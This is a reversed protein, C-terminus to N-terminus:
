MARAVVTIRIAPELPDTTKVIMEASENHRVLKKMPPTFVVEVRYQKGPTIVEPVAKFNPNNLAIESIEFDGTTKSLIISKAVPVGAAQKDGFRVAGFNVMSPTVAIIGKTIVYVQVEAKPMNKSNTHIFLNGYTTLTPLEKNKYIDIEYQGSNPTPQYTYTIKDDINSTISTIKFDLDKENSSILLQKEVPEGYRGQMVATGAPEVNVYPIETGSISIQFQKRIPDNSRVAATKVFQGTVRKGDLVLQIKGKGGPPIVKDFNAVTCGCSPKVDEIVLDAKGRNFVVYDHIYNDAEFVQGFDFDRDPIEMMPGNPDPKPASRDQALAAGAAFVVALGVTIWGMRRM